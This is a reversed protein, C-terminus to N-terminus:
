RKKKPRSYLDELNDGQLGAYVSPQQARLRAEEVERPDLGEYGGGNGNKKNGNETEPEEDPTTEQINQQIGAYESPRQARLRAEEVERPDLGEYGGGNGNKKNGNETELEENSTTEHISQESGAADTDAIHHHSSADTFAASAAVSNDDDEDREEQM